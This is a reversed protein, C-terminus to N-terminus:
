IHILSLELVKRRESMTREKSDQLYRKSRIRQIDEIARNRLSVSSESYLSPPNQKYPVLATHKSVEFSHIIGQANGFLSLVIDVGKMNRGTARKVDLNAGLLCEKLEGNFEEHGLRILRDSLSLLLNKLYKTKLDDIEGTKIYQLPEPKSNSVLMRFGISFFKLLFEQLPRYDM